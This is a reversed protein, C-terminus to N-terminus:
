KPESFLQGLVTEVVAVALAAYALVRWIEWGGATSPNSQLWPTDPQWHVITAVAGLQALQSDSLPDLRSERPDAQVAFKLKLPPDTQITVDYAGALDIAESLLVPQNEVLEVRRFQRLKEGHSIIADKGLADDTARYIFRDGVAINSAKNRQELL